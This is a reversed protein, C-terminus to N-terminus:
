QICFENGEPDALVAWTHGPHEGFHAFTAGADVYEAIAADLDQEGRDIDFHVRNKVSKTEEV